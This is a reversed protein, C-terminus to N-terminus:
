SCWARSAPSAGSPRPARGDRRLHVVAARRHAHRREDEAPGLRLPRQGRHVARRRARDQAAPRPLPPAPRRARGLPPGLVGGAPDAGALTARGGARDRRGGRGHRLADRAAARYRRRQRPVPQARDPRRRASVGHRHAAVQLDECRQESGDAHQSAPGLDVDARRADHDFRGPRRRVDAPHPPRAADPLHAADVSPPAAEDRVVARRGLPVVGAGRKPDHWDGRAMDTEIASLWKAAATKTAFTRPANRYLNTEPDRFRAQWRGSSLRRVAGFRRRGTM